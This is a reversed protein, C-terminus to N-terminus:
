SIISGNPLGQISLLELDKEWSGALIMGQSQIGMLTAPQLNAVVVVKKGIIEEPKYNLSIGSVVTRVEFGLDIQLKLLKKSKPVSEAKLISGVRLDLRQVDDINVSEKLPVYHAVSQSNNLLNADQSSNINQAQSMKHLKEIEEKIQVDEIRQFLVQPELLQQFPPINEKIVGEWGKEQLMQTYGLMHWIKSATEPIIPSSILALSKLCELCCSITTEMIHRMEPKKADQWPRKADFYVNGLQALEMILQSAHRVKFAAYSDKAEAVIRQIDNLFQIDIEQLDSRPPVVGGCHNRAFVL